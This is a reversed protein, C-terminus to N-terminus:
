AQGETCGNPYYGWHVTSHINSTTSCHYIAYEWPNPEQLEILYFNLEKKVDQLIKKNKEDREQILFQVTFIYKCPASLLAAPVFDEQKQVGADGYFL